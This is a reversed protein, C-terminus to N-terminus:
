VEKLAAAANVRGHGYHYNPFENYKIGGCESLGATPMRLDHEATSQLAHRMTDYDMEPSKALLLAAVGAVHPCAMSTGSMSAYSIDSLYYASVVHDGPASVDPKQVPHTQSGIGPGRSSFYALMDNKDTAGVSIVQATDGPSNTTSCRSGANGASFIVHIGADVAAQIWPIYTSDGRGGGWSNSIVDAGKSCDEETGDVKTPCVSFEFSSMLDYSSCSSSACGKAAIWKAKPAVGIGLTGAITGATHSGHGNNDYPESYIGRPDHWNYDHNVRFFGNGKYNTKLADHTWRTGTDIVSVVIGEGQTEEWAVDAEIKTIGWELPYETTNSVRVQENISEIVPMDIHYQDDLSVTTMLDSFQVMVSNLLDENCSRVYISNDIWFSRYDVGQADLYRLVPAQTTQAHEYLTDRVM